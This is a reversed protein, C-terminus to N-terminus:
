TYHPLGQTDVASAQNGHTSKHGATDTNKVGDVICFSTQETWQKTRHKKPSAPIRVRALGSAGNGSIVIRWNPFDPLM